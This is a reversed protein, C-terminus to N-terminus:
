ARGPPQADRLTPSRRKPRYSRALRGSGLDPCLGAGARLLPKVARLLRAPRVQPPQPRWDEAELAATRSGRQKRPYVSARAPEVRKHGRMRSPRPLGFGRSAPLNQSSSARLRRGSDFRHVLNQLGTGLWEALAGRTPWRVADTEQVRCRCSMCFPASFPASFPVFDNGPRTISSGRSRGIEATSITTVITLSVDGRIRSRTTACRGIGTTREVRRTDSCSSSASQRAQPCISGATSLTVPEM